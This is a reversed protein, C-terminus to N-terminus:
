ALCQIPLSTYAIPQSDADNHRVMCCTQLGSVSGGHITVKRAVQANGHDSRAVVRGWRPQLLTPPTDDSLCKGACVDEDVIAAGRGQCIAARGRLDDMQRSRM